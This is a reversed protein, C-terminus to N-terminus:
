VFVELTPVTGALATVYRFYVFIWSSNFFPIMVRMNSSAQKLGDRHVYVNIGMGVASSFTSFIVIKM